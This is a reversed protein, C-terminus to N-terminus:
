NVLALLVLELDTTRSSMTFADMRDGDRVKRTRAKWRNCGWINAM